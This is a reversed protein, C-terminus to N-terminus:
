KIAADTPSTKFARHAPELGGWGPPYFDAGTRVAYDLIDDPEM